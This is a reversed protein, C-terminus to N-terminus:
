SKLDAPTVRSGCHNCTAAKWGVSVMNKKHCTPCFYFNRSALIEALEADAKEIKIRLLRRSEEREKILEPSPKYQSPSSQQPTLRPPRSNAEKWLRLNEANKKQFAEVRKQAALKETLPNLELKVTTHGSPNEEYFIQGAISRMTAIAEGVLVRFWEKKYHHDKLRAHVQQEVERPDDVLAHYEVVYDDPLGAPDFDNGARSHPDKMSFGIKVLGPLSPNSMIYIFGKM